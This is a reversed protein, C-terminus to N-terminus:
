DRNMLDSVNLQLSDYEKILEAIEEEIKQKVEPSANDRYAKDLLVNKDNITKELAARKAKIQELRRAREPRDKEYQSEGSYWDKVSEKVRKLLGGIQRKRPTLRRQNKRSTRRKM